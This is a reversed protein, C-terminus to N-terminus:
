VEAAADAECVSSSDGEEKVPSYTMPNDDAAGAASALAASWWDGGDAFEVQAAEVGARAVAAEEDSTPSDITAHSLPEVDDLDGVAEALIAETMAQEAAAIAEEDGSALATAFMDEATM